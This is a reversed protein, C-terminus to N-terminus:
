IEDQDGKAALQLCRKSDERQRPTLYDYMKAM